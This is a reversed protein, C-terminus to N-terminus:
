IRSLPTISRTLKEPITSTLAVAVVKKLQHIKPTTTAVLQSYHPINAARETGTPLLEIM